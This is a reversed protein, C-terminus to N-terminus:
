DQEFLTHWPQVEFVLLGSVVAPDAAAFAMIEALTIARTTVMMGGADPVLFPGGLQLRGQAHLGAYHAVHERVGPQERFDVGPQWHPGPRHFVAYRPSPAAPQSM